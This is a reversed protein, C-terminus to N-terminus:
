APLQPWRTELRTREWHHAVSACSFFASSHLVLAVRDNSESECKSIIAPATLRPCVRLTEFEGPIHSAHPQSGDCFFTLALTQCVVSHLLLSRTQIYAGVVQTRPRLPTLWASSRSSAAQSSSSRRISPIAYRTVPTADLRYPFAPVERFFCAHM